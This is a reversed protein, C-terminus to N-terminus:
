SNAAYDSLFEDLLNEGAHQVQGQRPRDLYQRLAARGEDTLVLPSDSGKQRRFLGMASGLNKQYDQQTWHDRYARDNLSRAVQDYLNNLHSNYSALIDSFYIRETDRGINDNDRVEALWAKAGNTLRLEADATNSEPEFMTTYEPREELIRRRHGRYIYDGRGSRDYNDLWDNLGDIVMQERTANDASRFQAVTPTDNVAEHPASSQQESQPPNNGYAQQKADRLLDAWGYLLAVSHKLDDNDIDRMMPRSLQQEIRSALNDMLGNQQNMLERGQQNLVLDGNEIDFMNGVGYNHLVQSVAKLGFRASLQRMSGNIGQTAVEGQEQRNQRNRNSQTNSANSAPEREVTQQATATPQVLIPRMARRGIPSFISPIPMEIDAAPVGTDPAVIGPTTVDYSVVQEVGRTVTTTLSDATGTGVYTALVMNNSKDFVEITSFSEDYLIKAIPSNPDVDAIFSSGELHGPIPTPYMQTGSTFSVMWQLNGNQASQLMQQNSVSIGNSSTYDHLIDYSYNGGNNHLTLEGYDSIGTGNDFWGARHVHANGQVAEAASVTKTETVDVIGYNEQVDYGQDRWQKLLEDNVHSANVRRTTGVIAEATTASATQDANVASALREYLGLVATKSKAGVNQGMLAEGIGQVNDNFFAVVEQVAASFTVSYAFAKLGAKLAQRRRKSNFERDKERVDERIEMLQEIPMDGDISGDGSAEWIKNVAELIRSRYDSFDFDPDTKKVAAIYAAELELERTVLQTREYETSEISSYRILDIGRSDSIVQRLIVEDIAKKMQQIDGSQRAKDINDILKDSRAMQYMTGELDDEYKLGDMRSEDSSGMALERSMVYRDMRMQNSAKAGAFMGSAAATIGFVAASRRVLAEGGSVVIALADTINPWWEPPVIQGVKSHQLLDVAVEIKNQYPKTRAGERSEAGYMKFGKLVNDISEGHEVRSRVYMAIAQYNDISAVNSRAMQWKEQWDPDNTDIGSLSARIRNMEENFAEVTEIKYKGNKDKTVYDRLAATMMKYEASNEDLKNRREGALGWVYNDSDQGMRLILAYKSDSKARENLQESTMPTGDDNTLKLSEISKREELAERQYKREYYGRLIGGKWMRTFAGKVRAGLGPKIKHGDQDVYSADGNLEKMLRERAALRAEEEMAQRRDVSVAALPNYGLTLDLQSSTSEPEPVPDQDGGGLQHVEVETPGVPPTPGAERRAIAETRREKSSLDKDSLEGRHIAQYRRDKFKSAVLELQEGTLGSKITELNDKPDFKIGADRLALYWMDHGAEREAIRKEVEDVRAIEYYEQLEDSNVHDAWKVGQGDLHKRYAICANRYARKEVEQRDAPTLKDMMGNVWEQDRLKQEDVTDTVVKKDKSQEHGSEKKASKAEGDHKDSSKTAPKTFDHERILKDMAWYMKAQQSLPLDKLKVDDDLGYHERVMKWAAAQEYKATLKAKKKAHALRGRQTNQVQKIAGRLRKDSLKSFDPEDSLLEAVEVALEGVEQSIGQHPDKEGKEHDAIANGRTQSTETSAETVKVAKRETAGRPMVGTEALVEAPNKAARDYREAKAKLIDGISATLTQGHGSEGAAWEEYIQQATEPDVDNSHASLEGKRM